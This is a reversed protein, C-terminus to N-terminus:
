ARQNARSTPGLRRGARHRLRARQGNSRGGSTLAWIKKEASAVDGPKRITNLVLKRQRTSFPQEAIEWEGEEHTLLQIPLIRLAEPAVRSLRAGTQREAEPWPITLKLSAAV